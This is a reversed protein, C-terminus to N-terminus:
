PAPVGLLELWDDTGLDIGALQYPSHGQRKGRQYVRMNHWLIFLNLYAQATDLNAFARRDTLFGKLLSNIAEILSSTHGAADFLHHLQQVWHLREPRDAILDNLRDQVRQALKTFRRHGNILAQNLRWAQAATRSFSRQQDPDPMLEALQQLHPALAAALWDLFTLLHPRHRRLTKVLAKVESQNIEALAAITEDLLWANTQPHRIEGSRWDVMELADYLHDFWEKFTDHQDLLTEMTLAAPIYDQEFQEDSWHELLQQTLKEEQGMAAYAQRELTAQVKRALQFVHWPDKQVPPEIQALKLSKDYMRAMDEVLGAITLGQDQAELLTAAWTEAQRDDSVLGFLISSSSPDVLLLIPRDQFFTEDRLAIVPGLVSLDVQSLIQGAQQGAEVLFTSITGISRQQDFAAQLVAQMDRISLSGPFAGTLITRKLRAENVEIMSGKSREAIVQPEPLQNVSPGMLRERVRQGLHYISPRSVMFAGSLWTIIGWPRVERPINVVAALFMVEPWGLHPLKKAIEVGGGSPLVQWVQEIPAAWIEAKEVAEIYVEM